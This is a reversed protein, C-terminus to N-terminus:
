DRVAFIPWKATHNTKRTEYDITSAIVSIGPSVRNEVFDAYFTTDAGSAYPVTLDWKAAAASGPTWTKSILRKRDATAYVFEVGNGVIAIDKFLSTSSDVTTSTWANNAFHALVIKASTKTHVGYGLVVTGDPLRVAVPNEEPLAKGEPLDLPNTTVVRTQQLEAPEVGAGLSAGGITHMTSDSTDYYGAYINKGGGNHGKPGGHQSWTLYIRNASRTVGFAYVEAYRDATKGSDIVTKPASWTKGSDTSKIVRYVRYPYSIETNQSYFVHITNGDVVPEPYATRDSSIVRASWTGTISHATPATYFHLNKGHTAQFVALRGDALQTLVPYDHYANDHTLNLTAVKVAASWTNTTHDFAKIYIDHKTGSYTAFTKKATADYVGAGNTRLCGYVSATTVTDITAAQAPTATCLLLLLASLVVRM